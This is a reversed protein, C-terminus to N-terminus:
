VYVQDYNNYLGPHAIVPLGSANLIVEIAQFVDIYNIPIYAIGRDKRSGNECSFIKKHLEAFGLKGYGSHMLVEIIHRKYVHGLKNAYKKVMGWTIKYGKRILIDM